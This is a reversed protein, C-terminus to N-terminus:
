ICEIAPGTMCPLPQHPCTNFTSSAFTQLVWNRIADINEPVCKFPLVIPHSPVRSHTPCSCNAANNAALVAEDISAHSQAQFAVGVLPFNNSIIGLDIMSEHCLYFGNLFSSVYVMASFTVNSGDTMLGSMQLLM